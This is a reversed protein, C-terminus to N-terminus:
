GSSPNAVKGARRLWARATRVLIIGWFVFGAGLIIPPFFLLSSAAIDYVAFVGNALWLDYRRGLLVNRDYSILPREQKMVDLAQKRKSRPAFVVWNDLYSLGYLQTWMSNHLVVAPIGENQLKGCYVQAEVESLTYVIPTWDKIRPTSEWSM